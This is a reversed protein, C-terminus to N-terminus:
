IPLNAAPQQVRTLDPWEPRAGAAITSGWVAFGERALIPAWRRPLGKKTGGTGACMIIAPLKEGAKRNKPLYVDGAMRTGDSMITVPRLEVDPPVQFQAVGFPALVMSLAFVTGIM